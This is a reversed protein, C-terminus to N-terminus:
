RSLVLPCFLTLFDFAFLFSYTNTFTGKEPVFSITSAEKWKERAQPWPLFTGKGWAQTVNHFEEHGRDVLFLFTFFGPGFCDWFIIALNRVKVSWGQLRFFSLIMRKGMATEATDRVKKEGPLSSTKSLWTKCVVAQCFVLPRQRKNQWMSQQSWADGM